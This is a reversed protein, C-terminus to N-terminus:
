NLASLPSPIRHGDEDLDRIWLKLKRHEENLMLKINYKDFEIQFNATLITLPFALVLVGAMMAVAGVIKGAITIPYM